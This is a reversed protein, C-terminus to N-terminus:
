DRRFRQHRRVRRRVPNEFAQSARSETLAAAGFRFGFKLAGWEFQYSPRSITHFFTPCSVFPHEEIRPYFM